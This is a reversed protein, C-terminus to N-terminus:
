SSTKVRMTLLTAVGRTAFWSARQIFPMSREAQPLAAWSREM